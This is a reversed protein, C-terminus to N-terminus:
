RGKRSRKGGLLEDWKMGFFPVRGSTMDTLKASMAGHVRAALSEYTEGEGAHIPDLVAARMKAPLPFYPLLGALGISLGYPISVSIPFTKLRLLEPLRLLKALRQGDSIVFLTEGAGSVVIPVIPVKAELALKAFGKRGGFVVENRHFFSKMADLDGGPMVLVYHGDSLGALASGRSAVRVGAPELLPGLGVTWAMKHALVTFQVDERPALRPALAAIIFANLDVVGGFGHNAVLLAPPDPLRDPGEYELRTYRAIANGLGIFFGQVLERQAADDKTM